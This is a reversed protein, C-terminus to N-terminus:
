SPARLPRATRVAVSLRVPNGALSAPALSGFAFRHRVGVQV